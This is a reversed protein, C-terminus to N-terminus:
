EGICTNPVEEFEFPATYLSFYSADPLLGLQTGFYRDFVLRFNNVPTLGAPLDAGGPLYFASLIAMRGAHSVRGPGTDGQLIIIPPTTSTEIMARLVPLMRANLFAIQQNYAEIYAADDLQEPYNVANGQADFVFPPHPLLIHVFVFKPSAVEQPLRPLVELNYLIQTRKDDMPQSTDPVLFDPLVTAMDLLFLGATSRLLMVEFVNMGSVRGQGGSTTYYVEADTFESFNFGTEFAVMSYGLSRFANEVASDKILNRIETRDTSGSSFQGLADIYDMNLISTMVLETQAYNSQSCDLVTFGLERLGDLFATNDFDFTADLVDQRTYEDMIIFYVDPAPQGEPLRLNELAPAGAAPQGRGSLLSIEYSAIQWAPFLLLLLAIINLARTPQDFHRLRTVILWTGVGALVLWLPMLLRHRGLFIGAQELANYLHGYVFFLALLLSALVAARQGHRLWLRLLAWLLGAALLVIVLSRLAVSLRVQDVNLGLLALVFYAAFLFPHLPKKMFWNKQFLAGV